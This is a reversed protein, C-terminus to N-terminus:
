GNGRRIKLPLNALEFEERSVIPEVKNFVRIWEEKPLKKRDPLRYSIKKDKGQVMVGMYIENHIIRRVAVPSWLTNKEGAFSCYFRSNNKKKYELPSLIGEDNLIKAISEGSMMDLRMDFIRRVVGAAESDIALNGEKKNDRVYGYVAFAGIYKGERRKAMQGFRVKGSIDRCYADNMLNLIPLMLNKEFFDSCGSDYGDGIAIFRIGLMPFIRQIYKGSEIYDRGFRSLDKVIICDLEGNYAANLMRKVAPREFNSGSYGDDTYESILQWDGKEKVYQNIILRQSEISLTEDRFDKEDKSIRLYSVCRM